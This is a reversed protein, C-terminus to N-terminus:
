SKTSYRKNTLDAPVAHLLRMTFHTGLDYLKIYRSAASEVFDLRETKGVPGKRLQLFFGLVLQGWSGQIAM